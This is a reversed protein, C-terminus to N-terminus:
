TAFLTLPLASEGQGHKAHLPLSVGMHTVLLRKCLLAAKAHWSRSSTDISRQEMTLYPAEVVADHQTGCDTSAPIATTQWGRCSLTQNSRM